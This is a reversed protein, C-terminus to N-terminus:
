NPRRAHLVGLKEIESYLKQFDPKLVAVKLVSDLPPINRLPKHGDIFLALPIDPRMERLYDHIWFGSDLSDEVDGVVIALDHADLFKAAESPACATVSTAYLAMLKRSLIERIDENIEVILVESM